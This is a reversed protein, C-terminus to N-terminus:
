QPDDNNKVPSSLKLLIYHIIFKNFYNLVLRTMRTHKEIEKNNKQEIVRGAKESYMFVRGDIFLKDYQVFCHKDPRNKKVKKMFKRLQQRAERTRKSLDESVSIVSKKFLKSAKLVDEKDKFDEFTVLVPRCGQVDSGTYMRSINSMSMERQISIKVKILETIKKTLKQPTEREEQPIGYFILNNKKNIEFDYMKEQVSEIVATLKDLKGELSEIKDNINRDRDDMKLEIEDITMGSMQQLKDLRVKEDILVKELNNLRQNVGMIGAEINRDSEDIKKEITKKSIKTSKEATSKQLSSNHYIIQKTEEHKLESLREIESQREFLSAFIEDLAKSKEDFKKEFQEIRLDFLEDM